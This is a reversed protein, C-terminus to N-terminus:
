EEREINVIRLVAKALEEPTADIRIEEELEVKSPQYRSSKLKLTPPNDVSPERLPRKPM